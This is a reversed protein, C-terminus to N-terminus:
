QRGSTEKGGGGGGGEKREGGEEGRGGGWFNDRRGIWSNAWRYIYPLPAAAMAVCVMILPLHYVPDPILM